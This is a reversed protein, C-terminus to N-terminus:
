VLRNIVSDCIGKSDFLFPEFLLNDDDGKQVRKRNYAKGNALKRTIPNLAGWSGRQKRNLERKAKKSLKETPTFKEM